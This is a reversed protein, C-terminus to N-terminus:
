KLKGKRELFSFFVTEFSRNTARSKKQNTNPFAIVVLCTISPDEEGLIEFVIRKMLYGALIRKNRETNRVWRM